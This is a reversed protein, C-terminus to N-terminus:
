LLGLEELETVPEVFSCSGIAYFFNRRTRELETAEFRYGQWSLCEESVTLCQGGEQGLLAEVEAVTAAKSQVLTAGLALNLFGHMSALEADPEYTLPYRGRLAHHLGATAKLPLQRERCCVLFAAVSKASPFLGAQLGGLRIKAQGGAAAIADLQAEVPRSRDVEYFVEIDTPLAAALQELSARDSAAVEMSGISLRGGLRRLKLGEVQRPGVDAPVLVSVPWCDGEPLSELWDAATEELEELRALPVVLTGLLWAHKGSRYDNYNRVVEALSLSAPPFLGAYDFLSQLLAAAPHPM